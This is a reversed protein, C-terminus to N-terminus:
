KRVEEILSKAMHNWTYKNYVLDYANNIIKERELDNELYYDLKQEFDSMDNAFTVCTEGDVFVPHNVKPMDNCFLLTKSLAVEFYRPSIDDVPGTTALWIKCGNIKSAYEEVSAIRYSLDNSSNWFAKYKDNGSLFEGVKSRLDRAPGKIKGRGHDAGSFGIDFEVPIDRPHFTEPSATFWSRISRKAVKKDSNDFYDLLIDIKNESCFFLKEKLMNQPKHLMCVVPMQSEALGPIKNFATPNSQAFYGLGFILCEFKVESQRIMNVLNHTPGEYLYVNAMTKLQRM